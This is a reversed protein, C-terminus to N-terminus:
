FLAKQDGTNAKLSDNFFKVVEQYDGRREFKLGCNATCRLLITQGVFYGSMKSNCVPCPSIEVTRLDLNKNSM